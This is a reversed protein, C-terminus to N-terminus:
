GLVQWLGAEDEGWSFKSLSKKALGVTDELSYTFEEFNGVM